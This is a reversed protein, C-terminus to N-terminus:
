FYTYTGTFHWSVAGSRLCCVHQETDQAPFGANYQMCAPRVPLLAHVVSFYSSHPGIGCVKASAWQELLTCYRAMMPSRLVQARLSNQVTLPCSGGFIHHVLGPSPWVDHLTQNIVTSRRRNLLSAFVRFGNINASTGLSGLLDWGNTPRVEGYESSMHLVYQQKVLKKGIASVRAHRLQSSMARYCQAIIHLHRNKPM